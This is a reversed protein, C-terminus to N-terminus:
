LSVFSLFCLLHKVIDCVGCIHGVRFYGRGPNSGRRFVLVLLAHALCLSLVFGFDPPMVHFSSFSVNQVVHHVISFIISTTAGVLVFSVIWIYCQSHSVVTSCLFFRYDQIYKNRILPGWVRLDSYLFGGQLCFFVGLHYFHSGEPSKIVWSFFPLSLAYSDDHLYM